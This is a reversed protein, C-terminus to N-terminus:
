KHLMKGTATLTHSHSRWGRELDCEQFTNQLM